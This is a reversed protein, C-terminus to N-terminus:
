RTRLFEDLFNEVSKWVEEKSHHADIMRVQGPHLEAFRKYGDRVRAHFELGREDFHNKEGKAQARLAVRRMGEEPSIDLFIYLSP